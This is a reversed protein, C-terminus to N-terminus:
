NLLIFKKTEIFSGAEMRLFYIGPALGQGSLEFRYHGPSHVRSVPQYVMKGNSDLVSIVVRIESAIDFSVQTTNSFPNPKNQDLRFGEKGPLNKIGLITTAQKLLINRFPDFELNAPKKAFSFGFEQHNVDNMIMMVTDTADSFSIRVQIPMKFFAPDAQTQNMILSLRWSNIGLSDIDYTNQYVPHNPAYVWEDFFWNFNEGTVQNVKAVFDHTFANKFMFSTDTAYSRMVKFFMSDGLVYRLQFLVCAGKNYSIAQNYLTNGGPTLIAWEPHYLPWHPNHSLYYNALANM